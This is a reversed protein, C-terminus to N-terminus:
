DENPIRLYEDASATTCTPIQKTKVEGCDEMITEKLQRQETTELRKSEANMTLYEYIKPSSWM